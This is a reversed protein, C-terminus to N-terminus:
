ERAQGEGERVEILQDADGGPFQEARGDPWTVVLSHYRSDKGLGFHATPASSSLYSVAPNIWRVQQGRASTVQVEAGYADRNAGPDVARVQLWHGRHPAVNRFLRARDGIPAVLLDVGGDNDYDAWALGRAVNWYGCFDPNSTSIDRFRGQGDNALLLNKEAYTEWFGLQTGKAPGGLFVRGNVAAIDLAGANAFDAMLTGFGTARITAASVRAEASKDTFLGRPGQKWLTHTETNLHTVFVDVLENGDVDGVAVGMGAFAKGMANFAIGRSVAEDVFTGDHRNIWLRNARGDNAVFIDTWGDGDFDGVTVGLGPGPTAALGSSVSVDEFRIGNRPEGAAAGLNRFLKASRPPFHSPGCFDPAGSPAFCPNKPDYDLYNVVILDLWGDRDYDLFAASAGWVPNVLSSVESVDEFAGGRNVLLKVGGYQTVVVDSRGDNNVDGIAVGLNHGAFGLGSGETADVFKGGAVQRYLRNVSKSGPGGFQLLYIDLLGDGDADLFACGSGMSQPMFHSETPGADHLFDLGAAETVDELWPPAPPEQPPPQEIPSSAGGCGGTLVLLIGYLLLLLPRHLNWCLASPM